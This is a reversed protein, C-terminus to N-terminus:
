AKGNKMKKVAVLFEEIELDKNLEQQDEELEEMEEERVTWKRAKGDVAKKVEEVVMKAWESTDGLKKLKEGVEEFVRRWRRKMEEGEVWSGDSTRMKDRDGGMKKRTGGEWQRILDWVTDKSKGTWREKFREREQDRDERRKRAIEVKKLRRVEKLRRKEKEKLRREKRKRLIQLEEKKLRKMEKTVEKRREKQATKEFGISEKVVKRMEEKVARWVAESNEENSESVKSYYEEIKHEFDKMIVQAVDRLSSYDDRKGKKRDCGPTEQGTKRKHRRKSRKSGKDNSEQDEEHEQQRLFVDLSVVYHDSELWQVDGVTMNECRDVMGDDVCVYDNVAGREGEESRTVEGGETVGNMIVMRMGNMWAVCQEGDENVPMECDSQRILTSDIHEDETCDIIPQLNQTHANLDGILMVMGEKRLEIVAASVRERIAGNRDHWKSGRPVLYVMVVFLVEGGREIRVCVVGEGCCREERSVKGIGKRVLIAVGGSGMGTTKQDWRIEEFYEWGEGWIVKM